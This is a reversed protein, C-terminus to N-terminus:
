NHVSLSFGSIQVKRLDPFHQRLFHFIQFEILSTLAFPLDLAIDSGSFIESLKAHEKQTGDVVYAKPSVNTFSLPNWNPIVVNITNTCIPTGIPRFFHVSAALRSFNATVFSGNDIQASGWISGIISITRPTISTIAALYCFPAQM